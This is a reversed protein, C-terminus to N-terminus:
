SGSTLPSNSREAITPDVPLSTGNSGLRIIETAINYSDELGSFFLSLKVRVANRLFENDISDCLKLSEELKRDQRLRDFFDAM